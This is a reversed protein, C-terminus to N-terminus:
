SLSIGILRGISFTIGAAALGFAVQRMGSFLVGRGTMLTIAAGIAFLGFASFFVSVMIGTFGTFFLYPVVPILAGLAFLLFSVLAAVWASGGLEQPDISLEERVLTELATQKDALLKQAMGLATDQDIGKAQYILALEEMEEEPNEELESEEIGIQNRYLERSSQVSLWEGLAMSLAGALLGAFGTLLIERSGVGAGAVGMVLSFVSVLGDNAGLVGARLANGGATRHRGEFRAVARGELGGTTEALHQFIRAHSKEQASMKVTEPEPQSDYHSKAGQEIGALTPLILTTGFRKALWCLIRTRRGPRFPPFKDGTTRLKQEWTSAHRAETDALRRYVEALEPKKELSGLCEYLIKAELESQLNERYRRIDGPTLM